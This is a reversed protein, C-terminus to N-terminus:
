SAPSSARTAPNSKRAAWAPSAASLYKGHDLWAVVRSVKSLPALGKWRLRARAKMLKCEMREVHGSTRLHKRLKRAKAEFVNVPSKAPRRLLKALDGGRHHRKLVRCQVCVPWRLKNKEIWAYKM